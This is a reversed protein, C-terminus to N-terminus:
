LAREKNRIAGMRERMLAMGRNLLGRLAGDTLGLQTRMVDYEAGALYRMALVQRYEEPLEDLVRLAHERAETLEASESPSKAPAAVEAAEAGGMERSADRKKRSEFKLADLTVNRAVTLLWSLFGAAANASGESLSRTSSGGGAGEGSHAAAETERFGEAGRVSGIGKWASVFTEQTLDEARQRDRVAAVIQAYVVRSTRHVIKEFAARDGKRARAVLPALESDAM